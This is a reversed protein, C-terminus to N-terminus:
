KIFEALKAKIDEGRLNKAVIKGEPSILFNTPISQIAYLETAEETYIVSVWPTHETVYNKWDDQNRDLSVGYINFGKPSFEKYAAELFPMEGMCPGCWIAWFDLLVWKGEGVLSSLAVQEGNTNALSLDIYPQGIETKERKDLTEKVGKLIETQQMNEPFSALRTKADAFEMSMLEGNAFIYAGFINNLNNTVADAILKEYKDNLAERQEETAEAGLAYYAVQIASMSDTFMKYNDNAPTGSCVYGNQAPAIEVKGKEVFVIVQPKKAADAITAIFPVEVDGSLTITSDSAVVGSALVAAEKNAAILYVSDGPASNIKGSIKYGSGCCGVMTAAALLAFIIKKM